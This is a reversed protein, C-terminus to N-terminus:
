VTDGAFYYLNYHANAYVLGAFLSYYALPVSWITIAAFWHFVKQIWVNEEERELSALFRWNYLFINVPEVYLTGKGHILVHGTENYKFYVCSVVAISM